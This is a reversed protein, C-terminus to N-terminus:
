TLNNIMYSDNFNSKSVKGSGVKLQLSHTKVIHSVKQKFKSHNLFIVKYKNNIIKFFYYLYCCKRNRLVLKTHNLKHFCLIFVYIQKLGLFFNAHSIRTQRFTQSNLSFFRLLLRSIYIKEKKQLCSEKQLFDYIQVCM